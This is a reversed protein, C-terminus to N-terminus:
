LFRSLFVALNLLLLIKIRKFNFKLRILKFVM